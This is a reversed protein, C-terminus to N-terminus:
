SSSSWQGCALMATMREPNEIDQSAMWERASEILARGNEGGDLEGRRTDSEVGVAAM